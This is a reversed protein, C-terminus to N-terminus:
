EHSTLALLVRPLSKTEPEIAVCAHAPMWELGFAETPCVAVCHGCRLCVDEFDDTPVPLDTESDMQLVQAPCEAVCIGDQNCKDRDIVIFAM